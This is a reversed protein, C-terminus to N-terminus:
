VSFAGSPLFSVKLNSRRPTRTGVRRIEGHTRLPETSCWPMLLLLYTPREADSSVTYGRVDWSVVVIELVGMGADEAEHSLQPVQGLECGTHLPAGSELVNQKILGTVLM